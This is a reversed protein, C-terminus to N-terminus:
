SNVVFGWSFEGLGTPDVNIWQSYTPECNQTDKSGLVLAGGRETLESTKAPRFCPPMHQTTGGVLDTRIDM